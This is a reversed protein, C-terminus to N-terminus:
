DWVELVGLGRDILMECHDKCVPRIEGNHNMHVRRCASKNCEYYCRHCLLLGRKFSLETCDKCLYVISPPDNNSCSEHVVEITKGIHGLICERKEIEIVSIEDNWKVSKNSTM